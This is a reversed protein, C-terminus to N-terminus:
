RMMGFFGKKEIIGWNAGVCFSTLNSGDEKKLNIKQGKVLSIAMKLM